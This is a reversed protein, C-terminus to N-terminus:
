KTVKWLSDCYFYSGVIPQFYVPSLKWNQSIGIIREVWSVYLFHRCCFIAISMWLFGENRGPKRPDRNPVGIFSQWLGWSFGGGVAPATPNWGWMGPQPGVAVNWWNGQLWCLVKSNMPIKSSPSFTGSELKEPFTLWKKGVFVYQTPQNISTKEKPIWATNHRTLDMWEIADRLFFSRIM